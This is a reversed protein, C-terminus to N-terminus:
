ILDAFFEESRKFYMVSGVSLGVTIFLSILLPLIYLPENFLCFRFGNIVGSLPNLAVLLQLREPVISLSFGVPTCYVGLQIFFPIIHRFDRYRVILPAFILSLGLSIVSLWLVFFPLLFFQAAPIVRYYGISIALYFIFAITLDVVSCLLRSAPLMVRPFYTKSILQANTLFSHSAHVLTDAFFQWVLMGSFVLLAYPVNKSPIGAIKSFIITFIAVTLLPRVVIWVIGIVTQKYQVLIDRWGLFFFVERYEWLEHLLTKWSKKPSIIIENM